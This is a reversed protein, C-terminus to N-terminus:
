IEALARRAAGVLDACSPYRAGPDAAMGRALVRDITPPLDVLAALSPVQGRLHATVVEPVSGLFPARGALCCFLVCALSYEDSAPGVPQGRLHEPSAYSPSGLFDGSATRHGGPGRRTLGFDGLYAYDAGTTENRTVLVNAPKVDLHVLGHAHLTDLAGAVQRLLTMVQRPPLPGSRALAALDTGDVLRMAIFLTPGVEGVDYIPVINVHDIAAAARAEEVFRARFEPDAALTQSIVKLAVPRGLRDDVARYVVSM